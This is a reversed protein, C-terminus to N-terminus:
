LSFKVVAKTGPRLAFDTNSPLSIKIIIKDPDVSPKVGETSASVDKKDTNDASGDASLTSEDAATTDATDTNDTDETPDIIDLITGQLSHQNITYSVFQGLRVKDKNARDIQAELWISGGDGINVITQGAKVTTGVAVDTYYVTGGVPAIVDTAQSDQKAAALAAEAQKVQLEAQKIIQPSTPQVTTHYSPTAVAAPAPASAAAAASQYDAEAQDRKVASIAGMAFLQNMRDLRAQAQALDSRAASNDVQQPAAAAQASPISVTTGAQLQELNKKALDVTQQLQQLQEDTVNVKVHAIIDGAEVRAGDEVLIDEVTGAARVKAGVMTSAIKADQVTFYNHHHQYFWVGASCLVALLLLVPLGYKLVYNVKKTIDVEM